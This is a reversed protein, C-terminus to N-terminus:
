TTMGVDSWNFKAQLESRVTRDVTAGNCVSEVPAVVTCMQCPLSQACHGGCSPGM